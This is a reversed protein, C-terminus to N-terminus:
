RVILRAHTPQVPRNNTGELIAVLREVQQVSVTQTAKLVFWSVGESCPPTTLSGSFRYHDLRNPPLLRAANFADPMLGEGATEQPAHQWITAIDQNAAGYEFLVGVVALRGEHDAHVLHLELPYTRGNITNESPSHFHFQKLEFSQDGVSLLSGPAYNVQITHGNNVIMRGKTTYDFNLSPLDGDITDTIDIPSQHKGSDCLAFDSSIRGWHAPGEAGKYGWHATPHTAESCGALAVLLVLACYHQAYIRRRLSM